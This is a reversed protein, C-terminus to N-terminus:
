TFAQLQRALAEISSVFRPYEQKPRCIVICPIGLDLCPLVKESYGGEAGSEKTIVVDPQYFRYMAENLQLTFPGKIAVIEGIGFGLDVCSQIVGVTPLVRAILTKEPLQKKYDALTKSGTTLFVRNGLKQATRCAAETDAVKIM